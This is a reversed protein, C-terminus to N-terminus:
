HGVHHHKIHHCNHYGHYGHHGHCLYSTSIYQPCHGGSCTSKQHEVRGRLPIERCLKYKGPSGQHIIDLVWFNNYKEFFTIIWCSCPKKPHTIKISLRWLPFDGYAFITHCNEEIPQHIINIALPHEGCAQRTVGGTARVKRKQQSRLTRIM